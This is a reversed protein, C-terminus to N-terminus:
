YSQRSSFNFVTTAWNSSKTVDGTFSKTRPTSTSDWKQVNKTRTNIVQFQELLKIEALIHARNQCWKRIVFVHDFIWAFLLRVEQLKNKEGRVFLCVFLFDSYVHICPFKNLKILVEINIRKKNKNDSKDSVALLKLERHLVTSVCQCWRSVWDPVCVVPLMLRIESLNLKTQKKWNWRKM